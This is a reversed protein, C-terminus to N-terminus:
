EDNNFAALAAIAMAQIGTKLSPELAPAFFPSHNPPNSKQHEDDDDKKGEEDVIFGGFFWFLYPKKVANGLEGFDESAPFPPTDPDFKDGFHDAFSESVINCVNPDNDLRPAYTIQEIIPEKPSRGAACEAKVIREVAKIMKERVETKYTRMNLELEAEDPIINPASGAHFSGITVVATENPSVERSVITQLRTVLSSAIVIPDITRDPMSGHGGSGHVVIRFSDNAAMIPGPRVGVTGARFPVVHQGLLVDPIPCAHRKPDYLGDEVM